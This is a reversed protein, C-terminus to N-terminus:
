KKARIMRALEDVNHAFGGALGVNLIPVTVFFWQCVGIDHIKRCLGRQGATSMPHTRLMKAYKGSYIGAVVIAVVFTVALFWLYYHNSNVVVVPQEDDGPAPAGGDGYTEQVTANGM